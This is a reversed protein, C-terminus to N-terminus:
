WEIRMVATASLVDVPVAWGLLPLTTVPLEATVRVDGGLRESRIRARPASARAAADASTPDPDISAVRASERAVHTVIIQDRVLLGVQVVGAVIVAVFPLLLVFEVTAQGENDLASM